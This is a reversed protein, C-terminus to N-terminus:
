TGLGALINQGTIGAILGAIVDVGDVIGGFSGCGGLLPLTALASLGVAKITKM